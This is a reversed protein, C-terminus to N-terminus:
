LALAPSCRSVADVQSIGAPCIFFQYFGITDQTPYMQVRAQEQQRPYKDVSRARKAEIVVLPKEVFQVWLRDLPLNLAFHVEGGIAREGIRRFLARGLDGLKEIQVARMAYDALWVCVLHYDHPYTRSAVVTDGPALRARQEDDLLLVRKRVVSEHVAQM